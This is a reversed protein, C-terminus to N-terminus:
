EISWKRKSSIKNIGLLMVITLGVSIVAMAMGLSLDGQEFQSYIYTASTQMAPPLIMLAGVLERISITFTMMWGALLSPLLLPLIIRRLVYFMKGGLVRGAQFLSEDIQSYNAKVYQVTYPLFFIVYTLVVMGYTNYLPIPMWPADWVIILGVVMVIGPVTNPLLSFLDIIRQPWTRSKQIALAFVTGIIVCITAVILSLSLSNMLAEMSESGWALLKEYHILTFNQWVLGGGRLKMISAVLISFYPVGIAIALLAIIYIWALWTQWRKLVYIKGESGKGSITNYTFKRSILSSVYWFILCTSLLVTALSTAKSFDIPWSSTYKQIETTIVYYGIRRGFTAPAGFESISKVFILLAGMAYSSFLLPLVIRRFVYFAKGGHIFAADEISGSVQLLANRLILYLLPLMHLSMILVMGLLNFFYPSLKSSSPIFQEFYGKPQMFLIWGMSGIYPPTMFPIMILVDLWEHKRLATKALIWALPLAFLTTGGVVLVGLLITNFFTERLDNDIFIRLPAALNLSGNPFISTLFIFFLPIVVLMLLLLIALTMGFRKYHNM